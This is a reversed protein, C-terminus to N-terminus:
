VGPSALDTLEAATTVDPRASADFGSVVLMWRLIPGITLAVVVTGIGVQGGLSWGAAVCILEIGTRAPALPAGKDHLALMLIEAPGPGIEAIIVATVGAAVVVYGIVFLPLRAGMAEAHPVLQLAAGIIPGVLLVALATGPGPRRGLSWALAVFVLPVIMAAAGIAIGLAAAVGTTLVDYPAVGVEARIMMAVGLGVLAFGAALTSLRRALPSEPTAALHM